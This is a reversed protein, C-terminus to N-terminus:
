IAMFTQLPKVRMYVWPINQGNRGPWIQHFCLESSLLTVKMKMFLGLHHHVLQWRSYLPFGSLESLYSFDFFDCPFFYLTRQMQVLFASSTTMSVGRFYVFSNLVLHSKLPMSKSASWDVIDACIRWHISTM